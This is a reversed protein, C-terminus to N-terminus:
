DADDSLPADVEDEYRSEDGQDVKQDHESDIADEMDSADMDLREDTQARGRQQEEAEPSATTDNHESM